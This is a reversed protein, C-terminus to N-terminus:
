PKSYDIKSGLVKFVQMYWGDVCKLTRKWSSTARAVSNSMVQWRWDPTMRDHGGMAYYRQRRPQFHGRLRYGAQEWLLIVLHARFRSRLTRALSFGNRTTHYLQRFVGKGNVPTLRNIQPNHQVSGRLHARGSESLYVNPKSYHHALYSRIYCFTKSFNNM